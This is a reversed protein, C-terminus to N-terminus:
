DFRSGEGCYPGFTIEQKFFHEKFYLKIIVQIINYLM